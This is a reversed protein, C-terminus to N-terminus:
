GGNSASSPSLAKGEGEDVERGAGAASELEAQEDSIAETLMKDIATFTQEKEEDSDWDAKEADARMRRLEAVDFSVVLEGTYFEPLEELRYGPHARMRFYWLLIRRAKISGRMVAVSFQEWTGGFRREIMEAHAGLVRAPDFQWRGGDGSTAPDEPKYEVWM